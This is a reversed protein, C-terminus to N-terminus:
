TAKEEKGRPKGTAKKRISYFFLAKFDGQSPIMQRRLIIKNEEQPTAVIFLYFVRNIM